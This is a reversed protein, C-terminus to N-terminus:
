FAISAGFYPGAIETEFAFEQDADLGTIDATDFDVTFSRYGARLNVDLVPIVPLTYQASIDYDTLFGITNIEADLRLGTMPIAAGLHLYGMPLPFSLEEDLITAAGVGTTEMMISGDFMRATLGFDIDVIPLPLGWYLTLDQHTFDMTTANAANATVTNGALSFEFDSAGTADQAMDTMQYKLNPIVPIAHDIRFYLVSGDQDELGLDNEFDVDVDQGAAAAAFQGGYSQTWFHYGADIDVLPLASATMPLGATLLAATLTKKM